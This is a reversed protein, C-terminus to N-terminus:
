IVDHSNNIIANSCCIDFRYSKKLLCCLSETENFEKHFMLVEITQKDNNSLNFYMVHKLTKCM